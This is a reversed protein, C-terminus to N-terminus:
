QEGGPDEATGEDEPSRSTMAPRRSPEGETREATRRTRRPALDTPRLHSSLEDTLQEIRSAAYRQNSRNGAEETELVQHYLEIAKDREHRRYDLVVACEFRAPHPTAPDLAFAWRYYRVALENDPDDDRLYERYIQGCFFACDDVKDSKPYQRLLSKFLYLAERAKSKTGALAGAGPILRVEDMLKSARTYVEDAEPISEDPSVGAHSETTGETLYPYVEVAMEFLERQRRAWNAKVSDGGQLYASELQLLSDIHQQRTAMMDEVLDPFSFDETPAPRVAADLEGESPPTLDAVRPDHKRTFAGECGAGALIAVALLWRVDHLRTRTDRM